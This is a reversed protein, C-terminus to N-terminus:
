IFDKSFSRAMFIGITLGVIIAALTSILQNIWGEMQLFGILYPVIVVAGIVLIFGIIFKQGLEVRM